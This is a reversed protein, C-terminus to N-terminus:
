RDLTNPYSIIGDKYQLIYYKYFNINKEICENVMRFPPELGVDLVKYGNTSIIVDYKLLWKTMAMKNRYNKLKSIIDKSHNYTNFEKYRKNNHFNYVNYRGGYINIRIHSGIYEEQLVYYNRLYRDKNWNFNDINVNRINFKYVYNPNKSFDSKLYYNNKNKLKALITYLSNKDSIYKTDPYPIKLKKFELYFKTKDLCIKINNIPPYDISFYEAFHAAGLHAFQSSATFILDNNDFKEKLGLEILKDFEDYGISYFKECLGKGPAELNKDVGIVKYNKHKLEKLYPIQKYNLGLFLVKKM